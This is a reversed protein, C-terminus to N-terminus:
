KLFLLEAGYYEEWAKVDGGFDEYLSRLVTQKDM